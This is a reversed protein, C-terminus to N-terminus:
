LKAQLSMVANAQEIDDYEVSSQITPLWFRGVKIASALHYNAAVSSVPAIPLQDAEAAAKEPEAIERPLSTKKRFFLMTEGQCKGLAGSFTQLAKSKTKGYACQYFFDFGADEMSIKTDQVLPMISMGKARLDSVVLLVWGMDNMVYGLQQSMKVLFNSKWLRYSGYKHSSDAGEYLEKVFYPPSTCCFSMRETLENSYISNETLAEAAKATFHSRNKLNTPLYANQMSEYVPLMNPNVDNVYIDGQIVVGNVTTSLMSAYGLYRDGWGGCCDLVNGVRGGQFLYNLALRVTLPYFQQVLRGESEFCKKVVSHFRQSYDRAVNSGILRPHYTDAFTKNAFLRQFRAWERPTAMAVMEYPSPSESTQKFFDPHNNKGQSKIRARQVKIREQLAFYDAAVRGPSRVLSRSISELSQQLQEETSLDHQQHTLAQLQAFDDRAGILTLDANLYAAVHAPTPPASLPQYTHLKVVYTM